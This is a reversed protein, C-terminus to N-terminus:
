KVITYVTKGKVKTEKLAQRRNVLEGEVGCFRCEIELIDDYGGMVWYHNCKDVEKILKKKM